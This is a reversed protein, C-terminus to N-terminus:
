KVSSSHEVYVYVCNLCYIVANRCVKRTWQMALQSTSTYRQIRCQSHGCNGCPGSTPLWPGTHYLPHERHREITRHRTKKACECISTARHQRKGRKNRSSLPLYNTPRLLRQPDWDVYRITIAATVDNWLYSKCLFFWLDNSSRYVRGRDLGRFSARALVAALLERVPLM